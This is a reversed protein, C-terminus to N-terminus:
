GKIVALPKCRAVIRAIGAREVVDVVEDVKKYAWEAEESVLKRTKIRIEVNKKKLEEFTKSAPIERIAQHRSMVRGSGHCSSGFTEKMAGETGVLVYSGTTMSGPILVPQGVSRYSKPVDPHGKPFARTAGKRHVYVKKRANDVQHEELKAINHSVDYLLEMGLADSSKGFVEEFGKRISNTIIQRNTFAYNVASKMAALYDEAEKSGVHAYSLEPDILRINHKSQYEVLTRLYDSCTQHGFGRSGTHVMIVVQGEYLGYAKATEKDFLREVSQVELFHNGAGLTGLQFLGRSKAEKSNKSFDAGEMIGKEETHEIDEKLGFGKGIIFPVGEECVKILDKETLGIQLKSGVGSPVNKFLADAVKGIKGKLDKEELNTKILRVGCNSVIISEAIFNHNENDVTIDYVYDNYNIPEIKEIHDYVYGEDNFIRNIVFEEFKYANKWIRAPGTRGWVSHRVFSESVHDNSLSSVIIETPTGCAQSIVARSRVEDLSRRTYELYRLYMCALSALVEKDKNYEYSIKSFFKILNETESLIFLRIGITEGDLGNYRYGEVIKPASSIVGFDLLLKKFDDIYEFANKQLAELKSVSFAPCSFNLGNNTVPKSMEAGFFAALFLRKQWLVSDMLWEPIRYTVSVKKGFPTGLAVLLVALSRSSIRLCSETFDFESTGYVTNIRHHRDRKYISSKFGLRTVDQAITRLDSEKGYISACLSSTKTFDKPKPITGDGMLSGMLKIILPLKESDLYIENLGLRRLLNMIQNQGNGAKPINLKDMTLFIDQESIVPKHPPNEYEVGEFGNTVVFDSFSLNEVTLMGKQTFIPHDASALIRKGSQTEIKYIRKEKKRMFLLHKSNVIRKSDIDMTKLDVRREKIESIKHLAGYNDILKTDPHLCNIDFGIAGPSIIGSEADFAEVGGVPFGYGEHGDPMVMMNSVLGPLTAANVAQRLTRDQRMRQLMHETAYITVNKNMETFLEKEISFKVDSIKKIPVNSDLPTSRRRGEVADIKGDM